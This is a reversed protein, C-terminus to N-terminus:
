LNNKARLTVNESMAAPYPLFFYCGFLQCAYFLLVQGYGFRLRCHAKWVCHFQKVHMAEQMSM